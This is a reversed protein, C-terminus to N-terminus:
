VTVTVPEGDFVLLLLRALGTDPILGSGAPCFMLKHNSGAANVVGGANVHPVKPRLVNFAGARYLRSKETVFLIRNLSDRSSCNRDSNKLPRLWGCNPSGFAVIPTPPAPVM